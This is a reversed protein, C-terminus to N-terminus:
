HRLNGGVLNFRAHPERNSGSLRLRGLNGFLHGVRAHFHELFVIQVFHRVTDLRVNAPFTEDVHFDHHFRGVLTVHRGILDNCKPAVRNSIQGTNVLHRKFCFSSRASVSLIDADVQTVTIYGHKFLRALRKKFANLTVRHGTINTVVVVLALRM